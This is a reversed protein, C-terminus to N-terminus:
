ASRLEDPPCRTVLEVRSRIGLKTFVNRLHSKPTSPDLRLQDAIQRNTLGMAALRAIQREGKTLSAWGTTPRNRVDRRRRTYGVAEALSWKAGAEMEAALQASGLSGQLRAQVHDAREHQASSRAYGYAARHCHAAGFLRAAFPARRRGADAAQTAIAELSEVVGLVEGKRHRLELAEYHLAIGRQYDGAGAALEALGSLAAATETHNGRARARQLADEFMEAALATDGRLVVVQARGCLPPVALHEYATAASAAAAFAEAALEVDGVWLAWRGLLCRVEIAIEPTGNEQAGALAQDLFDRAPGVDGRLLALEGLGALAVALGYPEGLERAIAQSEGLADEADGLCGQALRLRGVLSLGIRAGHADQGARALGVAEEALAAGRHLDGQNASALAWLRVAHAVCWGDEALRAMAACEQLLVAAAVPASDVKCNGLLLLCRAVGRGDGLARYADMARGAMETGAAIDGTAVALLAAGWQAKALVAVPVPGPLALGALLYRRGERLSGQVRWWSTMAGALRLALEADGAGLSWELAARVDAHEAGLRALWDAQDAGTLEPEAEEALAVMCRAHRARVAEKEGAEALKETAYQRVIRLMRYRAEDGGPTVSLLGCAVLSDLLEGADGRGDPGFVRAAAATTAGSAFVSLRRLMARQRVPCLQYSWDVAARLDRHHAPADRRAVGLASLHSELRELIEALSLVVVQAAALEIGLPLGDVRRCIEGVRLVDSDTPVLAPVLARAREWFLAVASTAATATPDANAPPVALPALSWVAEGPVGLAQRSTALITVESGARLVLGALVAVETTVHECNDLVVLAASHRLHEALSLMVTRGPQEGVECAEAVVSPVFSSDAAGSFSVLVVGGAYGTAVSAAVEQALRSKGVGPPGTVTVLRRHGLLRCLDALEAARGVFSDLAM